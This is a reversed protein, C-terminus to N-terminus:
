REGRVGAADYVANAIATFKGDNATEPVLDIGIYHGGQNGTWEGWTWVRTFRSAYLHIRNRSLGPM